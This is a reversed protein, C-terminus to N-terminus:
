KSELKGIRKILDYIDEQQSTITTELSLIKDQFYYNREIIGQRYSLISSELFIIQQKLKDIENM